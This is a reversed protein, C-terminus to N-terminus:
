RGSRAPDFHQDRPRPQAAQARGRGGPWAASRLGGDRRTNSNGNRLSLGATLVKDDPPRAAVAKSVALVAALAEKRSYGSRVLQDIEKEMRERLEARRIELGERFLAEAGDLDGMEMRLHGLNAMTTVVYPHRDGYARRGIALSQGLLRDAKDVHGLAFEVNALNTLASAYSPDDEGLARRVIGAAEEFLARAADLEGLGELATAVTNLGSAYHPHDAGLYARALGRARLGFRRGEEFEARRNHAMGRENLRAVQEAAQRPARAREWTVRWGARRPAAPTEPLACADGRLEELRGMLERAERVPFGASAAFRGMLWALTEECRAIWEPPFLPLSLPLTGDSRLIALGIVGAALGPRREALWAFPALNEFMARLDLRLASGDASEGPLPGSGALRVGAWFDDGYLPWWQLAIEYSVERDRADFMLRAAEAGASAPGREPVGLDGLREFLDANANALQAGTLKGRARYRGACERLVASVAEPPTGDLMSGLLALRLRYQEQTTSPVPPPADREQRFVMPRLSLYAFRYAQRDHAYPPPGQAGVVDWFMTLDDFVYMAYRFEDESADNLLERALRPFEEPYLGLAPWLEWLVDFKWPPCSLDGLWALVAKLQPSLDKSRLFGDHFAM